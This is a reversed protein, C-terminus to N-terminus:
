NKCAGFVLMKQNSEKIGERVLDLFMLDKTKIQGYENICVYHLESTLTLKKKEAKSIFDSLDMLTILESVKINCSVYFYNSYIRIDYNNKCYKQLDNIKSLLARQRIYNNNEDNKYLQVGLDFFKPRFYSPDIENALANAYFLITLVLIVIKKM